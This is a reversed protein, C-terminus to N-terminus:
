RGRLVEPLAPPRAVKQGTTANWKTWDEVETVEADSWTLCRPWVNLAVTRAIHHALALRTEYWAWADTRAMTPILHGYARAVSLSPPDHQRRYEIWAEEDTLCATHDGREGHPRYEAYGPPRKSFDLQEVKM